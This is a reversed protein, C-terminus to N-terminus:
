TKRRKTIGNLAHYAFAAVLCALGLLCLPKGNVLFKEAYYSYRGVERPERFAFWDRVNEDRAVIKIEAAPVAIIGSRWGSDMQTTPIFRVQKNGDASRVDLTMEERFYGAMEIQLYSSRPKLINSEM